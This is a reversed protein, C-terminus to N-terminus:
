PKFLLRKLIYELSPQQSIVLRVELQWLTHRIGDFSVLIRLVVEGVQSQYEVISVACGVLHRRHLEGPISLAIDEVIGITLTHIAIGLPNDNGIPFFDYILLLLTLSAQLKGLM